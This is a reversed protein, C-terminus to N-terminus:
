QSCAPCFTVTCREGGGGGGLGKVREGEGRVGREWAATHVCLHVGVCALKCLAGCLCAGTRNAVFFQQKFREQPTAMTTPNAKLWPKLRPDPTRDLPSGTPNAAKEYKFQECLGEYTIVQV